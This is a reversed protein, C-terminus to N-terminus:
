TIKPTVAHNMLGSGGVTRARRGPSREIASPSRCTLCLGTTPPISATSVLAMNNPIGDASNGARACSCKWPPDAVNPRSADAGPNPASSPAAVLPHVPRTLRGPITTIPAPSDHPAATTPKPSLVSRTSASANRASAPIDSRM